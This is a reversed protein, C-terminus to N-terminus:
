SWKNRVFESGDDSVAATAITTSGNDAKLTQTTATQQVTNRALVMLWGIKAALTATAAPVAAPEAFTDVNLVDLVQANVQAASLNNLAAIAALVADDAAALAATLEANTPVADVATLIEAKDSTAEARTPPDYATLAAAASTQVQATSVNNLAAIAALTADDATGLASTL